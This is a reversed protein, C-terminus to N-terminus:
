KKSDILIIKNTEVDLKFRSSQKADRPDGSDIISEIKNQNNELSLNRSNAKNLKRPSKIRETNNRRKPLKSKIETGIM